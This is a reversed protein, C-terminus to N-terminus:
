QVTIKYDATAAAPVIEGGITISAKDSIKGRSFTQMQWNTVDAKVISGAVSGHTMAVTKYNGVIGVSAQYIRTAFPPELITTSVSARRDTIDISRRNIVESYEKSIGAKIELSQMEEDNGGIKFNTVTDKGFLPPIKWASNDITPYNVAANADFIGLLDFEAEPFAGTGWRWTIDGRAGLMRTRNGEINIYIAASEQGVDIPTYEVRTSATVTKAHATCRALWDWAPATGAVGSSALFIKGKLSVHRGHLAKARGGMGVRIFDAEVLEGMVDDITVDRILASATPTPDVGYTTEVGALIAMRAARIM